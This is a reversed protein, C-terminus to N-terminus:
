SLREKKGHYAKWHRDQGDARDASIALFDFFVGSHNSKQEDGHRKQCVLVSYRKM